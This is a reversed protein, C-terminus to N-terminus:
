SHTCSAIEMRPEEPDTFDHVVVRDRMFTSGLIGQGNLEPMIGSICYEKEKMQIVLNEKAILFDVNGVTVSVHPVEGECPIIWVSGLRCKENLRGSCETDPAGTGPLLDFIAHAIPNPFYSIFCGSDVVMSRQKATLAMSETGQITFGDVMIKYLGDELLTATGWSSKLAISTPIGGFAILGTDPTGYHATGLLAISFKKEPILGELDMSGFISPYSRKSNTSSTLPALGLLGDEVRPGLAITEDFLGITQRNIAIGAISVPRQILGGSSSTKDGYDVRFPEL